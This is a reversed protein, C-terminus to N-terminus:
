RRSKHVSGRLHRALDLGAERIGEVALAAMIEAGASSFHTDDQLGDPYNLHEGRALHLFLWRSGNAGHRRLAHESSRHMDVLAVGHGAAVARVIDPYEGHTDYFQGAADFRRRVVPTFLVPTAERARVETVFRVLNARYDAPPTHTGVKEPPEDNHGFQIFVYDGPRLADVIAQWRQEAVFTRTSRGNRAHNEVRVESPDFHRQLHEGWGTEPRKEPLKEAMTSDGALHIVVPDGGRAFGVLLVLLLGVGLHRMRTNM